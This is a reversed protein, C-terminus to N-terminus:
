MAFKAPDDFLCNLLLDFRLIVLSQKLGRSSNHLLQNAYYDAHAAVSTPLSLVSQPLVIRQMYRNGRNHPIYNYIRKQMWSARTATKRRGIDNAIPMYYLHLILLYLLGASGFCLFFQVVLVCLYM